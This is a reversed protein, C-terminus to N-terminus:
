TTSDKVIKGWPANIVSPHGPVIWVENLAVSVFRDKVAIPASSSQGARAAYYGKNQHGDRAQRGLAEPGGNTLCRLGCCSLRRM